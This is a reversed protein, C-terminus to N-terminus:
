TELENGCKGCYSNNDDVIMGCKDCTKKIKTGCSSCYINYKSQLTGCKYCTENNQKYLMYVVLGALNTILTLMGWLAENMKKKKADKYVWLAVGVWYLVFIIELIGGIAEFLREGYPITKIDTIIFVKTGNNKDLLYNLLYVNKNNFNSEYFLEDDKEKGFEAWEKLSENSFILGEPRVVKYFIDTNNVEQLYKGDDKPSNLILKNNTGIDSSKAKYIINNDKDLMIIDVVDNSDNALKDLQPKISNDIYNKRLGESLKMYDLAFSIKDRFIYTTSGICVLLALVSFVLYYKVIKKFNIKNIFDDLYKM